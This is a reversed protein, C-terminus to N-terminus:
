SRGKLLTSNKVMIISQLDKWRFVNGELKDSGFVHSQRSEIRGHGKEFTINNAVNVREAAFAKEVAIRLKGQNGKVALLYDAGKDVIAKAIKTQSAMADITVLLGEIDLM